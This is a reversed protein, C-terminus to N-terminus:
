PRPKPKDIIIYEVLKEVTKEKRYKEKMDM